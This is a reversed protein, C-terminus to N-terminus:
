CPMAAAVVIPGLVQGIRSSARFIGLATSKGLGQAAPLSMLLASSMFCVMTMALITAWKTKMEDGECDHVTIRMVNCRDEIANATRLM